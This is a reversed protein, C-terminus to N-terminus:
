ESLPVDAPTVNFSQAAAGDISYTKGTVNFRINGSNESIDLTEGTGTADTIVVNGGTTTITYDASQVTLTIPVTTATSCRDSATVTITYIGVPITNPVTVAGTLYNVTITAPSSSPSVNQLDINIDGNYNDSPGTAPLITGGAGPSFSLM